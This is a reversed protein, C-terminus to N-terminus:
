KETKISITSQSTESNKLDHSMNTFLQYLLLALLVFTIKFDRKLCFLSKKDHYQANLLPDINVTAKFYIIKLM